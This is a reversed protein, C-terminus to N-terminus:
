RAERGKYTDDKTLGVNTSHTNCSNTPTWIFWHQGLFTIKQYKVLKM